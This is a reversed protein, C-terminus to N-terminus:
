MSSVPEATGICRLKPMAASVVSASSVPRRAMVSRPQARAAAATIASCGSATVPGLKWILKAATSASIEPQSHSRGRSFAIAGSCPQRRLATSATNPRTAVLRSAPAAVVGNPSYWKPRSCSNPTAAFATATGKVEASTIGAPIIATASIGNPRSPSASAGICHPTSAVSHTARKTASQGPALRTARGSGPQPSAITLKPMSHSHRHRLPQRLQPRGSIASPRNLPLRTRAGSRSTEASARM